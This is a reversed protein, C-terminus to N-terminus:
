RKRKRTKTEEEAGNQSSSPSGSKERRRRFRTQINAEVESRLDHSLQTWFEANMCHDYHCVIYSLSASRLRFAGCEDAFSFLFAANHADISSQLWYELHEKLDNVLYQDSLKLLQMVVDSDSLRKDIEFDLDGSYLFEIFVRFATLWVPGPGQPHETSGITKQRKNPEANPLVDDPTVLLLTQSSESLGSEFLAKFKQSRSSLVFKHVKITDGNGLDLTFDSTHDSASSPQWCKFLDNGVAPKPKPISLNSNLERILYLGNRNGM